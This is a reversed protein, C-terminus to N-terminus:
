VYDMYESRSAPRRYAALRVHIPEGLANIEAAAKRISKFSSIDAVVKQIKADKFESKIKDEAKQM